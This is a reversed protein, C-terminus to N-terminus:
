RAGLGVQQANVGELNCEQAITPLKENSFIKLTLLTMVSRRQSTHGVEVAAIVNCTWQFKLALHNPGDEFAKPRATRTEAAPKRRRHVDINGKGTNWTCRVHRWHARVRDGRGLM